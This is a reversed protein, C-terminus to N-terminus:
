WRQRTLDVVGGPAPAGSSKVAGASGCAGSSPPLGPQTVLHQCVCACQRLSNFATNVGVCVGEWAASVGVCEKGLLAPM